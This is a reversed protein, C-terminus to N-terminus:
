CKNEGLIKNTGSDAQLDKPVPEFIPIAGLGSELVIVSIGTQFLGYSTWDCKGDKKIRHECNQPDNGINECQRCKFGKYNSQAHKRFAEFSDFVGILGKSDLPPFNAAQYYNPWSYNRKGEMLEVTRDISINLKESYDKIMSEIWELDKDFRHTGDKNETNWMTDNRFKALLEQLKDM